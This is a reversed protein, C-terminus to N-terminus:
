PRAELALVDHTTVPIHRVLSLSLAVVARALYVAARFPSQSPAGARRPQMSVPVQTVTCGARLAIVLSEVTDGLYEV